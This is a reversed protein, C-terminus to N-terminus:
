RAPRVARIGRTFAAPFVSNHVEDEFVQEVVRLGPRRRLRAAFARLDEAMAPNEQAGVGLFVDAAVEGHGESSRPELGLLSGGAYWLSPSVAVYRRFLEPRTLLV